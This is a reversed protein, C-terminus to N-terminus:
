APTQTFSHFESSLIFSDDALQKTDYRFIDDVPDIARYKVNGSPVLTEWIGPLAEILKEELRPARWLMHYHFNTTPNEIFSISDLREDVPKKQWNRGLALRDLWAHLAKLSRQAGFRTIYYDNFVLTASQTYGREGIWKVLEARLRTRDM